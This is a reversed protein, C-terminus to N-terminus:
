HTLITLLPASITVISEYLCKHLIKEFTRNGTDTTKEKTDDEKREQANNDISNCVLQYWKALIISSNENKELCSADVKIDPNEGISNRLKCLLCEWSPLGAAMSVGAGLFLTINKTQADDHARLIIEEPSPLPVQQKIESFTDSTLIHNKKDTESEPSTSFQQWTMVRFTKEEDQNNIPDLRDEDKVILWLHFPEEKHNHNIADIVNRLRPVIDLVIQLKIEIMTKAPIGLNGCGQPLYFDAEFGKDFRFNSIIEEKDEKKLEKRILNYVDREFEYYLQQVNLNGM